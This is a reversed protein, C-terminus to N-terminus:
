YATWVMAHVTGDNFIIKLVISNSQIPTPLGKGAAGTADAATTGFSLSKIASVGGFAGQCLQGKRLNLSPKRLRKQAPAAANTDGCYLAQNRGAPSGSLSALVAYNGTRADLEIGQIAGIRAGKCGLAPDGERFLSILEGSGELVLILAQDNASTVGTGRLAVQAAFQGGNLSWFRVIRSIVVGAPLDTATQSEEMVRVVAAPFRALVENNQSTIGTGKLLLKAIPQGDQSISEGVISSIIGGGVTMPVGALALTGHFPSPSGALLFLGQPTSTSQLAAHYILQDDNIAVRPSIQGFKIAVPSTTGETSSARVTANQDYIVVGSDTASTVGNAGVKFREAVAFRGTIEDESQAVQNMSALTRIDAVLGTDVSSGVQLLTGFQDPTPNTQAKFFLLADPGRSSRGLIAPILAQTSNNWMPVGFSRAFVTGVPLPSLNNTSLISPNLPEKAFDWVGKVRNSTSARIMIEEGALNGMTISDFTKFTGVGAGPAADKLKTLPDLNSPFPTAVPGFRYIIANGGPDASAFVSDGSIVVASGGLKDDPKGDPARLVGMPIGSLDFLLLRGPGNSVEESQTVVIMGSNAAMRSGFEDDVAGTPDTMAGLDVATALDFIRVRGRSSNFGAAGAFLRGGSITVFTGLKDAVAGGIRRLFSRSVVDYWYVAGNGVNEFFAGTAVVRGDTAVQSAFGAATTRISAVIKESPAAFLDTKMGKIDFVWLSGQNGDDGPAGVAVTDGEIAVSTGFADGSSALTHFLRGIFKGTGADFVYAAGVDGARGPAGVVIRNGSISVSNGFSDGAAGDPALLKFRRAGSAADFVYAAGAGFGREDNGPEGAVLLTDTADIGQGFSDDGTNGDTRGSFLKTVTPDLALSTGVSMLLLLTTLRTSM